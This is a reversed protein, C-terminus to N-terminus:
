PRYVRIYATVATTLQDCGALSITLADNLPYPEYVGTVAAAASDCINVRPTYLADTSSNTVVLLNGGREAFAVTTDTTTPASAHFDLYIDLLFGFLTETSASGTASGASGTTAIPLAITQIAPM